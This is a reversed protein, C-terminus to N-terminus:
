YPSEMDLEEDGTSVRRVPVFPPPPPPRSGPLGGGCTPPPGVPPPTRTRKGPPLRATSAAGRQVTERQLGQSLPSPTTSDGCARTRGAAEAGPSMDPQRRRRFCGNGRSHLESALRDNTDRVGALHDRTEEIHTLYWMRLREADQQAHVLVAQETEIQEALRALLDSHEQVQAETEAETDAVRQRLADLEARDAELCAIAESEEMVLRQCQMDREAIDRRLQDIEYLKNVVDVDFDLGNREEQFTGISDVYFGEMGDCSSTVVDQCHADAAYDLHPTPRTTLPLAPMALGSSSMWRTAEKLQADMSARTAQELALEKSLEAIRQAQRWCQRELQSQEESGAVRARLWASRETWLQLHLEDHKKVGSEQLRSHSSASPVAGDMRSSPMSAVARRTKPSVTAETSGAAPTSGRAFAMVVDTSQRWTAVREKQLEAQLRTQAETAAQLEEVLCSQATGVAGIQRSIETGRAFMGKVGDSIQIRLKENSQWEHSIRDRLDQNATSAEKLKDALTQKAGLLRQMLSSSEQYQRESREQIQRLEGLLRTHLERKVEVEAQLERWLEGCEDIGARVQPDDELVYAPMRTPGAARSAACTFTADEAGGGRAMENLLALLKEDKAKHLDEGTDNVCSM